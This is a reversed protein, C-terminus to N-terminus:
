YLHLEIKEEGAAREKGNKKYMARKREDLKETGKGNRKREEKTRRKREESKETGIKGHKKGSTVKQVAPNESLLTTILYQVSESSRRPIEWIFGPFTGPM